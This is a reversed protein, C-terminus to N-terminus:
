QTKRLVFCFFKVRTLGIDIRATELSQFMSFFFRNKSKNAIEATDELAPPSESIAKTKRASPQGIQWLM